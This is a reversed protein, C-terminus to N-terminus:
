PKKRWIDDRAINVRLPNYVAYDGVGLCALIAAGAPMANFAAKAERYNNFFQM